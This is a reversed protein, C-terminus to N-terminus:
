RFCDEGLGRSVGERVGKLGIRLFVRRVLVDGVYGGICGLIM